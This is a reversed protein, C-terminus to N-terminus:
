PQSIIQLLTEPVKVPCNQPRTMHSDSPAQMVAKEFAIM